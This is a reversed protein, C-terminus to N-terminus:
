CTPSNIHYERYYDGVMEWLAPLLKASIFDASCKDISLSPFNGFGNKHGKAKKKRM